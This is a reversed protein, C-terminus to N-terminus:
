KSVGGSTRADLAAQIRAVSERWDCATTEGADYARSREVAVAVWEAEISADDDGPELSSILERALAARVPRPLRLAEGMVREVASPEMITTTM